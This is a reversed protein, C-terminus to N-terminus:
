PFDNVFQANTNYERWSAAFDPHLMGDSFANDCWVRMLALLDSNAGRAFCNGSNYLTVFVVDSGNTVEYQVGGQVAKGSNISLRLNSCFLQLTLLREDM